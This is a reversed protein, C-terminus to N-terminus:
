AGTKYFEAYRAFFDKFNKVWEEVFIKEPFLPTLDTILEIPKINKIKKELDLFAQRTTRSVKADKLLKEELPKAQQQMYWVLDFYDRAAGRELCAIMKGAMLTAKDWHTIVMSKGHRVVPTKVIIAIQKQPSVELKVHLKESQNASLDLDHLIPLRVTWRKILEGAQCYVDGTKLQLEGRIYSGLDKKFNALNLGLSNDLDIDESMRNLGYVVRACSGGYFALQRYIKHGYIFKLFYPILADKVVIRRTEADAQRIEPEALLKRLGEVIAEMTTNKQVPQGQGM